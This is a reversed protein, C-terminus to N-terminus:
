FPGTFSPDPVDLPVRPDAAPRPITRGQVLECAAAVIDFAGPYFAGALAPSTPTPCEPLGIRRPPSKLAGGVEEAVRAVVEASFGAHKWSTDAVILRGTKRVSDFITNEDFPRLCRPDIVEAEIGESALTEAARHAELAMHSLAVITVDRGRRLVRARGFPVRYLGEPVPGTINHLWRHEIFVVPNDDEISSILLGKADQPTSPMVVRLGPIHAFWSQLSQSHQPGQGWGRGVLLRIVMPVSKQGGFMYHWKAAQNVIQEMALVAFDIRQHLLIPRMGTLASGIAVGTMGNEACPMDMVRASGYKAELGATTGFIGKPDTAGLGIVYVSPDKAMCLDTAEHVAQFFKLERTM